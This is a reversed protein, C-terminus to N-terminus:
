TLTGIDVFQENWDDSNALHYSIFILFPMIHITTTFQLVLIRSSDLMTLVSYFGVIGIIDSFTSEYIMFERRDEDLNDISPLIIASSLISLPITHLLANLIEVGM